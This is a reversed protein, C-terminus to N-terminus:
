IRVIVDVGRGVAVLGPDRLDRSFAKRFEDEAEHAVNM